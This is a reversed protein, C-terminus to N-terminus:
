FKDPIKGMVYREVVKKCVKKLLPYSLDLNAAELTERILEWVRENEINRFFKRGKPTIGFVKSKDIKYFDLQIDHEILGEEKLRMLETVVEEFEGCFLFDKVLLERNEAVIKCLIKRMLDYNRM